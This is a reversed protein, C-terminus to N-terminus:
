LSPPCALAFSTSSASVQNRWTSSHCCSVFSGSSNMSNRRMSRKWPSINTNVGFPSTRWSGTPAVGISKAKATCVSTPRCQAPARTLPRIAGSERSSLFPSVISTRVLGFCHGFRSQSENTFVERARPRM